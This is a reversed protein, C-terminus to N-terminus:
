KKATRLGFPGQPQPDVLKAMGSHARIRERHRRNRKMARGLRKSLKSSGRQHTPIEFIKPKEREDWAKRKKRQERRKRFSFWWKIREWLKM